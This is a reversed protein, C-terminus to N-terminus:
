APPKGVWKAPVLPVPMLMVFAVQIALQILPPEATSSAIMPWAFLLMPLLLAGRFSGAPMKRHGLGACIALLLSPVGIFGLLILSTEVHQGLTDGEWPFVLAVILWGVTYLLLYTLVCRGIRGWIHGAGGDAAYKSDPM